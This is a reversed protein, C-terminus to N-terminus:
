DMWVGATVGFDAGTIERAADSALFLVTRAVAEPSVFRGLPSSAAFERRVESEPRGQALAQGAIVASIRDGEVNGPSVSNVTIGEPGLELALSRTLGIIAMKSAAYPARQFLPRKGTMSAINIIRAGSDSRRLLPLLARCMWFVGRVNVAFVEDWETDSISGIPATPGAVGANNVLVDVRSVRRQLGTTFEAMSRADAVDLVMTESGEVGASTWRRSTAIVRYGAAVFEGVLAAGLGYRGGSVVAVQQEAV